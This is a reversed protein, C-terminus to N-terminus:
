MEAGRPAREYKKQEFQGRGRDEKQKSFIYSCGLRSSVTRKFEPQTVNTISHFVSAAINKRKPSLYNVITILVCLLDIYVTSHTLESAYFIFHNTENSKIGCFFPFQIIRCPQNLFRRYLYKFKNPVIATSTCQM